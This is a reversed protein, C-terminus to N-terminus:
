WCSKAAEFLVASISELNKSEQFPRASIARTTRSWVTRTDAQNVSKLLPLTSLQPTNRHSTNSQSPEQHGVGVNIRDRVATAWPETVAVSIWTRIHCGPRPQSPDRQPQWAPFVDPKSSSQPNKWEKMDLVFQCKPLIPWLKGPHKRSIHKPPLSKNNLRWM